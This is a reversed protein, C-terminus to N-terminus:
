GLPHRHTHSTLFEIFKTFLEAQTGIKLKAYINRRHTKITAVSTGLRLSIAGSSHGTLVLKLVQQERNTLIDGGFEAFSGDLSPQSIHTSFDQKVLQWHKHFVASAVPFVQTTRQRDQPTFGADSKRLITVEIMSADPLNILLMLEDMHKPWGPTLYGITERADIKIEFEVTRILDSYSDPLIDSMLYVGASIGSRFAQYVPNLLYTHSLYNNLGQQFSDSSPSKSLLIPAADPRYLFFMLGDNAVIRGINKGFDRFFTGSGITEILGVNPEDGVQPPIVPMERQPKM